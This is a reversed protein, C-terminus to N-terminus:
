DSLVLFMNDNENGGVFSGPVWIISRFFIVIVSL